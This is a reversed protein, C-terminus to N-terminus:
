PECTLESELEGNPNRYKQTIKVESTTEVLVAEAHVHTLPVLREPRYVWVWETVLVEEVTGWYLGAEGLYMVKHLTTDKQQPQYTSHSNISSSSPPPQPSDQASSFFSELSLSSLSFLIVNFNEKQEDHLKQLNSPKEDCKERRRWWEEEFIKSIV